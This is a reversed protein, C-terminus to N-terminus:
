GGRGTRTSKRGRPAAGLSRRRLWADRPTWAHRNMLVCGSAHFRVGERRLLARQVEMGGDRRPSIRGGAAVVRQWPLDDPARRLAYGVWRARIRLFSQPNMGRPPPLLQAIAGYTMVRGRPIARVVAYVAQDFSAPM